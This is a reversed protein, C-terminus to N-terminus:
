KGLRRLIWKAAELVDKCVAEPRAKYRGDRGGKGTRVLVPACGANRATQLDTTSDGVFFCEPLELGWRRAAKEVLGTGPKRCGCPKVGQGPPLHPCCYIADLRAGARALRAKLEAHIRQLTRRSFYGRGVGSQNSVVVVKLGAKGLRRVAEAAGPLVELQRVSRVYDVDEVLVGDRDLFVARARSEAM